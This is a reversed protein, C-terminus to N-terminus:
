LCKSTISSVRNSHVCLIITIYIYIYIHLNCSFIYDLYTFIDHHLTSTLTETETVMMLVQIHFLECISPHKSLHCSCIDTRSNVWLQLSFLQIWVKGLPIFAIHFAILRTWSKFECWRTWKKRRYGNCWPCRRILLNIVKGLSIVGFSSNSTIILSMLWLLWLRIICAEANCLSHHTSIGSFM